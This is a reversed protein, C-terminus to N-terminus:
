IIPFCSVAPSSVSPTLSPSPQLLPSTPSPQSTDSSASVPTSSPVPSSLGDTSPNAAPGVAGAQNAPAHQRPISPVRIKIMRNLNVHDRRHPSDPSVASASSPRTLALLLALSCFLTIALNRISM